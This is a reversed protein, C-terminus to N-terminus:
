ENRLVAAPKEGLVRRVGSLGLVLTAAVGGAVTWIAPGPLFVWDMHMARTVVFYSLLGGLGVALVGASLGLFLHEIALAALVDGRTAGVVKLVVAEHTRRRVGARLASALVLIGSLLAVGAVARIGAAMASLINAASDLADRVAIGTVRPLKEGVAALIGRESGPPAYVTAIETYPAGSVTGPSFVFAFNMALSEWDIRRLSTVTATVERGLVNVTLETGLTLGLAAAVDEAVSVLPPGDYGEPWWTGAVVEAGSLPAVAWTIGRDSRLVWRMDPPLKSEDPEAGAVRVIRGRLMPRHEVRGVGPQGQVIRVFEEVEGPRIDIFFFAPAVEPLVVQIRRSMNGDMLAVAVLVTLGLGLAFLVVGTANGPRHLSRLAYALRPRGRAPIRAALRRVCWGALAFVVLAGLAGLVFWLALRRQPTVALAYVALAGAALVLAARGRRGLRGGSDLYGRFLGAAPTLRALLLPRLSFAMAALFGFGAAEVLPRFYVGPVARVPLIDALVGLLFYPGAAGAALGLGVGLAALFIIQLGYVAGLMGGTAGVCKMVAISRRKGELYAGVAGSMGLGGVLIAALGAFTLYTELRDFFESIRPSSQSFDRIRYGRGEYKERLRAGLEAPGAGGAMAVRAEYRVLSGPGALGTAGLAELSCLMRPGLTFINFSRDPERELVARLELVASGVTVRDGLKLGLREFLVQGAAAGYVGGGGALVEAVPKGPKLELEGVLPYAGDVAKLEVLMREGGGVPEAMARMTAIESVRGAARLEGVVDAEVPRFTQGVEVDGGLMARADRRVGEKVAASFSGVLAIVGVGLALCALFVGFRPLGGRLERRALRCALLFRATITM